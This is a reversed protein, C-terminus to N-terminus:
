GLSIIIHSALPLLSSVRKFEQITCIFYPLDARQSEIYVADTFVFPFWIFPKALCKQAELICLSDKTRNSSRGALVSSFLEIEYRITAKWKNSVREREGAHIGRVRELMKRECKHTKIM